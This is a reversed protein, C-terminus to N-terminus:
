SKDIWDNLKTAMIHIWVCVGAAVVSVLLIGVIMGLGELATWLFNM